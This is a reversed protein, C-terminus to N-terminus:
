WAFTRLHLRTVEPEGEPVAPRQLSKQTVSFRQGTVRLSWQPENALQRCTKPLPQGLLRYLYVQHHGIRGQIKAM